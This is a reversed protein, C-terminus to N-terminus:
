IDLFITNDVPNIMEPLPRPKRQTEITDKQEYDLRSPVSELSLRYNSILDCAQYLKYVSARWKCAKSKTNSINKKVKIRNSQLVMNATNIFGHQEGFLALFLIIVEVASSLNVKYVKGEWALFDILDHEFHQKAYCFSVKTMKM